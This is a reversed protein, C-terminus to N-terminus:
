HNAPYVASYWCTCSEVWYGLNKLCSNMREQGRYYAYDLNCYLALDGGDHCLILVSDTGYNEGRERWHEPTYFATCGGGHPDEGKDDKIMESIASAIKLAEGSLHDTRFDNM